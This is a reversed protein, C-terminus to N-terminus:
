TRVDFSYESLPVSQEKELLRNIGGQEADQEDRLKMEVSCQYGRRNLRETLIDMHESLFDLVSDDQVMFRTNVKENAMAVYVDVPGLHEMDLHLLASIQGDKMALNKKNTYVYLDGHAKGQQLRLPLQIYTYTQNVQQLFDINQSLSTVAKYASGATQGENELTQALSKMQRDVRRYLEEVREKDAVEEPSISWQKGLQELLPKLLHQLTRQGQAKGQVGLMVDRFAEPSLIKGETGGANGTGSSKNGLANEQLAGDEAGNINASSAAATEKNQADVAGQAAEEMIVRGDAEFFIKDANGIGAGAANEGTEGPIVKESQVAEPTEGNQGTGNVFAGDGAAKTSDAPLEGEALAEDAPMDGPYGVGDSVAEAGQSMEETLAVLEKYLNAAGEMDGNQVLQLIEESITDMVQSLGAELQYTLNRYSAMQAVNASNVPLQLKHLSVIDATDAEPFQNIERFLQQLSNRGISLGAEMMQHTMTVTTNNVPLSAMDLAKMINADTAMNTFLPSLTLTQGNNKVEFTISKGVELNMSRDLRAQLVMDDAVRVQLENGNRSVVEGQITQGPVLSQIQRNVASNGATGPQIRGTDTITKEGTFLESLRM